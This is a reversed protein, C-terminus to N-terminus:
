GELSESEELLEPMNSLFIKIGGVYLLVYVISDFFIRLKAYYGMDSSYNKLFYMFIDTKYVFMLQYLVISLIVLVFGFNFFYRHHLRIVAVFISSFILTLLFDQSIFSIYRSLYNTSMGISFLFLPVVQVLLLAIGGVLIWFKLINVFFNNQM